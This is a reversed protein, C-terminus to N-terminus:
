GNAADKGKRFVWERQIQFGVLFLLLDVPLKAVTQAWGLQGTLLSVLLASALMQVVCLTYYRALTRARQGEVRFVRKKNLSYNVFSSILRALATALLIALSQGTMRIPLAQASLPELLVSFLCFLLYDVAFAAVSSAIYKLFISWVRISDRIPNFHSSENEGIYVTSIPVEAIAVDKERADVLMNMEYEFREGRTTLFKQMTRGNLGRLGTQTDSVSVGCLLRFMFRTLKNGALSRFPIGKQSFDRCGMVLKEPEAALREAVAIIDPLKHQGDADICVAQAADGYQELVYEFATKLARGKGQNVEHTLVVAGRAAAEDFFCQREPDSGDNVVVVREFGSQMVDDLAARFKEDPDLVPIIIITDRM